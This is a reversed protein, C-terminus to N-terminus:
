VPHSEPDLMPHVRCVQAPSEFDGPMPRGPGSVDWRPSQGRALLDSTLLCLDSPAVGAPEDRRRALEQAVPRGRPLPFGQGSTRFGLRHRASKGCCEVRSHRAYPVHPLSPASTSYPPLTGSRSPSVAKAGPDLAAASSVPKDPLHILGSRAAQASPFRCGSLETVRPVLGRPDQPVTPAAHRLQHVSEGAPRARDKM